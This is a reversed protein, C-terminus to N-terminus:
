VRRARSRNGPEGIAAPEIGCLEACRDFLIAREAASERTWPVRHKPRPRRDHWFAGANEAAPPSGALWVITDAGADADRLLPRMLKDFRPLSSAVGPTAVWGPHVSHVVVGRGALRQSWEESLAVEIRKTHAYFRAGDFERRELQLDDLDIRATYMGGSSVNVVRSPAAAELAPLLLATLLFPGLVNTAFTLEFGEGTHRRAAPLVGANNVLVDLPRGSDLFAAAADRVSALDSLDCRVLEPEADPAGALVKRRAREGKELDRVVMLVQAGARALQGCAAEGIGSSAGTLMVTKGDLELPGRPVIRERLAYGVRSYGPLVAWDLARDALSSLRGRPDM